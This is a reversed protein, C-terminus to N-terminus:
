GALMVCESVQPGRNCRCRPVCCYTAGAGGGSGRHRVEGTSIITTTMTTTTTLDVRRRARERCVHCVHRAYGVHAVSTHRTSTCLEWPPCIGQRRPSLGVKAKSDERECDVLLVETAKQIYRQNFEKLHCKPPKPNGRSEAIGAGRLRIAEHTSNSSRYTFLIDREGSGGGGGRPFRQPSAQSTRPQNQKTKNRRQSM